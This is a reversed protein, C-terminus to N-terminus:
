PWQGGPAPDGGGDGRGGGGERRGHSCAAINICVCVCVCARARVSVCACVCILTERACVRAWAGEEGEGDSGMVAAIVVPDENALLGLSQGGVGM